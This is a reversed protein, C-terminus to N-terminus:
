FMDRLTEPTTRRQVPVWYDQDPAHLRRAMPDRGIARMVLGFPTMVLVYFTGLLVGNLVIGLLPAVRSWMRNPPLLVGPAALALLLFVAAVGPAWYLRADFVLWAMAFIMTFLAAFTFGFARDSQRHPTM